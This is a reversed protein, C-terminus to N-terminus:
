GTAETEAQKAKHQYYMQSARQRSINMREGIEQFSLGKEDRLRVVRAWRDYFQKLYKARRM